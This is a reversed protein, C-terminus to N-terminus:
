VPEEVAIAAGSGLVHTMRPNDGLAMSWSLSRWATDEEIGDLHLQITDHPERRPDLLTTITLQDARSAEDRLHWEALAALTSADRTCRTSLPQSSGNLAGGVDVVGRAPAALPGDAIRRTALSGFDPHLPSDIAAMVHNHAQARAGRRVIADQMVMREGASDGYVVAASDVRLPATTITGDALCYLSRYVIGALLDSTITSWTTGPPWVVDYPVTAALTPLATPLSLSLGDIITQVAEFYETGSAVAYPADTKGEVLHTLADGGSVQMVISGDAGYAEQTVVASYVGLPFDISETRAVTAVPVLLRLVPHILAVQADFFNPLRDKNLTLKIARSAARDIDCTITADGEVADTIEQLTSGGATSHFYRYDARVGGGHGALADAIEQATPPRAAPLVVTPARVLLVGRLVPVGALIRGALAVVEPTAVTLVGALEPAGASLRGALAVLDPAVVTLTGSLSPVGASLRGSLAVTAPAAVTLTGALAVPGSAVEGSLAVPPNLVTLAGALSAVGSTLAGELAVDGLPTVTLAGSLAAAGSSLSGALAVPSPPAITLVGALAPAGAAIEGALSVPPVPEARYLAFIFRTGATVSAISAQDAAPVALRVFNGGGSVISVPFSVLFTTTQVAIILDSGDGEFYEQLSLPGNDHLSVVEGGAGSGSDRFRLLNIPEEALSLLIDGDVLTSGAVARPTRGWVSPPGAAEILAVTEVVRNTDDFDDLTLLDAPDVIGDSLTLSVSGAGLTTVWTNWAASNDPTWFYPDSPDAFTNDPHNPGKLTLSSGGAATLVFAADATEMTSSFHPGAETPDATTTAALRVRISGTVNQIFRLYAAGGGDILDADVLVAGEWSSDNGTGFPSVGLVITQAAM